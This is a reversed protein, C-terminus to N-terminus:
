LIGRGYHKELVAAVQGASKLKVIQNCGTNNARWRPCGLFYQDLLGEFDRKEKLVMPENHVPCLYDDNETNKIENMRKIVGKQSSPYSVIKNFTANSLQFEPRDTKSFLNFDQHMFQRWTKCTNDYYGTCGWGFQSMSVVSSHRKWQLVMPKGCTPCKKGVVSQGVHFQLIHLNQDQISLSNYSSENESIQHALLKEKSEDIEERLKNRQDYLESLRARDYQNLGGDRGRKVELEEIEDNLSKTKKLGERHDGWDAQLKFVTEKVAHKFEMSLHAAVGVITAGVSTVSKIFSKALSNFFGM